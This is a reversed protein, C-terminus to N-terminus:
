VACLSELAPFPLLAQLQTEPIQIDANFFGVRFASQATSFKKFVAEM